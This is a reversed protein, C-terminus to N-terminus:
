EGPSRRHFLSLVADKFAVVFAEWAANWKFSTGVLSHDFSHAIRQETETDLVTDPPLPALAWAHFRERAVTEWDPATM